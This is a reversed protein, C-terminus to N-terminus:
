SLLDQYEARREMVERVFWCEPVVKFGLRRVEELAGTVLRYGFTRGRVPVPVETRYITIVNATLRYDAVALGAPTDLEFRHQQLNHHVIARQANPLLAEPAPSWSNIYTLPHGSHVDHFSFLEM